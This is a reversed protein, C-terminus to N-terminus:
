SNYSRFPGPYTQFIEDTRNFIHILMDIEQDGLKDIVNELLRTGNQFMIRVFKEGHSNLRVIKERGSDPHEEITLINTPGSTLSRIAKSVSSSTIELWDQLATEISKRPMSKGDLGEAAIIWLIIVQQRSLETGSRLAEEVRYGAKYHIPFFINLQMLASYEKPVHPIEELDYSRELMSSSLPHTLVSELTSQERVLEGKAKREAEIIQDFLANVKSYIYLCVDAESEWQSMRGLYWRCMMTGNEVMEQLFDMGIPTLAILKERASQPHEEITILQLPPKAMARIAKSIASSSIDYWGSIVNELYKRRMTMGDKGESRIIWLVAVQHRHLIENTRLTDEVKMGVAYHVPYFLDLLKKAAGERPIHEIQAPQKNATPPM